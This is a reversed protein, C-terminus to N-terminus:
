IHILSLRLTNRENNLTVEIDERVRRLQMRAKHADDAHLTVALGLAMGFKHDEQEGEYYENM